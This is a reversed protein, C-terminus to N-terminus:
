IHYGEVIFASEKTHTHFRRCPFCFAADREIFYEQWSFQNYWGPCFERNKDKPFLNLNPRSPALLNLDGPAGTANTSLSTPPTDTAESSAPNPGLHPDESSRTVFKDMVALSSEVFRLTCCNSFLTKALAFVVVNM